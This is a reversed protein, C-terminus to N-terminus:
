KSWTIIFQTGTPYNDKVIINGKLEKNVLNCIIYLGVGTGDSYNTTFFPEFIKPKLEESIGCGNDLYIMKHNANM